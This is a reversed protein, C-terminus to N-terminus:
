SRRGIERAIKDLVAPRYAGSGMTEILVYAEELLRQLLAIKLRLARSSQKATV